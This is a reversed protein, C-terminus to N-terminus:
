LIGVTGPYLEIGSLSYQAPTTNTKLRQTIISIKGDLRDREQKEEKMKKEEEVKMKAKQEKDRKLNRKRKDSDKAEKAAKRQKEDNEKKLKLEENRRAEMLKNTRDNNPLIEGLTKFIIGTPPSEGPNDAM